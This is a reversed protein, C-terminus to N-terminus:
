LMAKLLISLLVIGAASLVLILGQKVRERDHSDLARVHTELRTALADVTQDHGRLELLRPEPVAVAGQTVLVARAVDALANRRHREAESVGAARATLQKELSSGASGKQREVQRVQNQVRRLEAQAQDQLSKVGAHASKAQAVEPELASERTRLEALKAAEAPPM